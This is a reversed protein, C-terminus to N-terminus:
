FLSKCEPCGHNIHSPEGHGGIGLRAGELAGGQGRTTTMRGGQYSLIKYMVKLEKIQCVDLVHGDCKYRKLAAKTTSVYSAIANCSSHRWQM